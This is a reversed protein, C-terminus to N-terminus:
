SIIFYFNFLIQMSDTNNKLKLFEELLYFCLFWNFEGSVYYFSLNEFCLRMQSM